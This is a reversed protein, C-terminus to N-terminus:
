LGSMRRLGVTLEMKEGKQNEGYAVSDEQQFTVIMFFKPLKM